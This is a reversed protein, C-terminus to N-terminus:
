WGPSQGLAPDKTVESTPIPLYYVKPDFKILADVTKVSYIKTGDAQKVINIWRRIDQYRNGEGMLEIRREHRIKERDISAYAPMNVCGRQRIQNVYWLADHGNSDTTGLEFLIEAENLYIESLRIVVWMMDEGTGWNFSAQKESTFKRTLYSTLSANWNQVNGQPSDKGGVFTEVPINGQYIAGDYLIDAYFRPDRNMYPNQDNYLPNTTVVRSTGQYTAPIVSQSGDTVEFQDVLQQTPTWYGFGGLSNMGLILAMGNDIFDPSAKSEYKAFIVESNNYDLFIKRYDSPSYLAYVKQSGNALNIVAETATKAKGLKTADYNGGNYLPSAAYLLERAKLALAAGKTARGMNKSNYSYPLLEEDYSSKTTSFSSNLDYVQTILPVGGYFNVLEAYYFARLFYMEGKMRNIFDQDGSVNDIKSFFVNAARIKGYYYAWISNGNKFYSNWFTNASNDPTLTGHTVNWEGFGNFKTYLDNTTGDPAFGSSYTGVGNYVENVFLETLNPDGFVDAESFENLPKKDLVEKECSVFLFFLAIIYYVTKMNM